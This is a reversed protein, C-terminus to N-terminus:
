HIDLRPCPNKSNCVECKTRFYIQGLNQSNSINKIEHDGLEDELYRKELCPGCLVEIDALADSIDIAIKKVHPLAHKLKILIRTEREYKWAINKLCGAFLPNRYLNNVYDWQSGRLSKENWLITSNSGRRALYVVDILEIDFEKNLRKYTGDKVEYLGSSGNSSCNLKQINDRLKKCRFKIRLADALPDGYIGWMGMNEDNGVSFSAVYLRKWVEPSGKRPERLDNMESGSSLHLKHNCLMGNLAGVNTHHFYGGTHNSGKKKLFELLEKPSKLDEFIEKEQNM